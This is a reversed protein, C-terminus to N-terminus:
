KNEQSKSDPNTSVEVAHYKKRKLIDKWWSHALLGVVILRLIGSVIIGTSIDPVFFFQIVLFFIFSISFLFAGLGISINLYILLFFM